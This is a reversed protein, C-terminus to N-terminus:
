DDIGELLKFENHEKIFNIIKYISSPDLIQYCDGECFFRMVVKTDYMIIYEENSDLIENEMNEIRYLIVEDEHSLLRYKDIFYEYYTRSNKSEKGYKRINRELQRIDKIEKEKDTM